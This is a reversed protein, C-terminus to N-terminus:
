FVWSMGSWKLTGADCGEVDISEAGTDDTMFALAACSAVVVAAASLLLEEVMVFGVAVLLIVGFLVADSRLESELLGLEM